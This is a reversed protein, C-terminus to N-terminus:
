KVIEVRVEKGRKYFVTYKLSGDKNYYPWAKHKKGNKYTEIREPKGSEYFYSHKGVPKGSKFEGYFRKKGSALYVHEWVGVKVDFKFAGIQKNDADIIMWDDEKLGSKYTGVVIHNGVSDYEKVKGHEVGNSYEEYRRTSGDSYLWKWPGHYKNDKYIGAQIVTGLEDYFKWKGQRLNNVFKGSAQINGNPYFLNFEGQKKGNEDVIGESILTGWNDYTFSKAINGISDYFRHVGVPLSDRYLGRFKLTSDPYYHLTEVPESFAMVSSDEQIISDGQFLISRTMQGSNDYARQYGSMKGDMYVQEVKVKGSTYFGVWKGTKKGKANFRNISQSSILVNNRYIDVRIPTGDTRYVFGKGSKIGAKFPITQKLPGDTKYFYAIGEKKDNLYLEKSILVNQVSDNSPSYTYTEYFGNKMGNLYSIKKQLKGSEDYFNWVSDLEFFSRKGESKLIGTPYYNKWYGDPKGDVMKGEASTTGDPYTFIKYETSQSYLSLQILVCTVFTLSFPLITKLQNM